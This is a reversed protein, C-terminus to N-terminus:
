PRKNLSHRASLPCVGSDTRSAPGRDPRSTPSSPRDSFGDGSDYSGACENLAAASGHRSAGSDALPLGSNGSVDDLDYAIPDPLPARASASTDLVSRCAAISHLTPALYL